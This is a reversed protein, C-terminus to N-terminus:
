TPVILKEKRLVFRFHDSIHDSIFPNIFGHSDVREGMRFRSRENQAVARGNIWARELTEHSRRIKTLSPSNLYINPVQKTSRDDYSTSLM